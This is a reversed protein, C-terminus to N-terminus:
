PAFSSRARIGWKGDIKQLIYLSDFTVYREGQPNFRSFVVKFHVKDPGAQILEMSDWESFDWDNDIAFQELDTKAVFSQKSPEVSVGNSAIRVHPFHLTDAWRVEDRANFASLFEDM